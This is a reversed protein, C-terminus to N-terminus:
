RPSATRRTDVSVPVSPLPATTSLAASTNLRVSVAVIGLAIEPLPVTVCVNPVTVSVPVFVYEPPVVISSRSWTARPRFSRFAPFPRRSTRRRNGRNEPRATPTRGCRRASRDAIDNRTEEAHHLLARPRHGQRPGVRVRSPVVISEPLVNRMPSPPVAPVSPEPSTAILSPPRSTKSRLSLTVTPLAILPWPSRPWSPEPVSIRM